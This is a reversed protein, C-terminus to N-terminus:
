CGGKEASEGSGKTIALTTFEEAVTPHIGVTQSFSEYTAGLRLACAWGQTVEGANPGLLQFGVVRQADAKNVVLKAYCANQPRQEVIAWELPTMQSHYVEVAEAGFKAQAQAESLGCNGFELPTFVATPVKDYDMGQTSGGYIRRALLRGAMIAVPTLELGGSVVDGIAYVHPVNTQEGVVPIKGESDVAVGAAAVGLKATDPARGTATFVSDFLESAAVGTEANVWSVKLKGNAQKEISTPTAPRLFRVGTGEMHKGIMEACDTDFGRLLISRVMVSVDYGLGRLFGACELAVYSAGVVLTRGPAHPLSFLDDSSIALEGGPVDLPKPRGGVAVVIRRATITSKKGKKDTLELTHPSVFTGLANKYDVGKESCFLCPPPPPPPPPAPPPRPARAAHTPRPPPLLPCRGRGPPGRM